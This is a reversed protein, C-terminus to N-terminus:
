RRGAHVVRDAGAGKEMKTAQALAALRDAEPAGQQGSAGDDGEEGAKGHRGEGGAADAGQGGDGPHRGAVQVLVGQDEVAVPGEEGVDAVPAVVPDHHRELVDRGVQDPGRDVDLVVGEVLVAPDIEAGDGPRRDGVVGM